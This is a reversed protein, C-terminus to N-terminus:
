GALGLFVLLSREVDVLQTSTIRGLRRGANSRRVTTLKDIMIFSPHELGTTPTNDVPIRILPADVPSTTLPLVTVSAATSFLDDQIVLAPRPKSAYIGGAVSWLEGRKV